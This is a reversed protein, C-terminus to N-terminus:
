RVSRSDCSEHSSLADWADEISKFLPSDPHFYPYLPARSFAVKFYRATERAVAFDGICSQTEFKILRFHEAIADEIINLNFYGPSLCQTEADFTMEVLLEAYKANGVGFRSFLRWRTERDERAFHAMFLALLDDNSSFIVLLDYIDEDSYHTSVDMKLMHKILFMRMWIRPQACWDRGCRGGDAFPSPSPSADAPSGRMEEISRLEFPEVISRISATVHAAHQGTFIARARPEWGGDRQVDDYRVNHALLLLLIDLAMVKTAMFPSRELIAGFIPREFASYTQRTRKSFNLAACSHLRPLPETAARTWEAAALCDVGRSFIERYASLARVVIADIEKSKGIHPELVDSAFAFAQMAFTVRRRFGRTEGRDNMPQNKVRECVNVGGLTMPIWEGSDVLSQVVSISLAKRKALARRAAVCMARARRFAESTTADEGAVLRRSRAFAREDCFFSCRGCQVYFEDDSCGVDDAYAAFDGVYTTLREVVVDDLASTMWRADVDSGGERAVGDIMMMTEKGGEDDGRVRRADDHAAREGSAARSLGEAGTAASSTSKSVINLRRPLSRSCDGNVDGFSM